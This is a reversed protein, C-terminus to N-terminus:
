KELRKDNRLAALFGQMMSKVVADDPLRRGNLITVKGSSRTVSHCSRQFEFGYSKQQDETNM